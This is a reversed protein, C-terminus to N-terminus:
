DLDFGPGAVPLVEDEPDAMEFKSWNEHPVGGGLGTLGPM